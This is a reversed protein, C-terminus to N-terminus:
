SSPYNANLYAVRAARNASQNSAFSANFQLIGGFSFTSVVPYRGFIAANWSSNTTNAGENTIVKSTGIAALYVANRTLPSLAINDAYFNPSGFSSTIATSSDGSNALFSYTSNSPRGIYHLFQTNITTTVMDSDCVSHGGFGSMLWNDNSGDLTPAALGNVDVLLTGANVIQPQENLTAQIWNNGNTTQDYFKYVYGSNTGIWTALSTGSGDESTLSLNDSADPYFDKFANDSDRRISVLAGAYLLRELRVSCCQFAGTFLDLYYTRSPSSSFSNWYTFRKSM